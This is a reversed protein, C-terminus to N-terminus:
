ECSPEFYLRKYVNGHTVEKENPSDNMWSTSGYAIRRQYFFFETTM